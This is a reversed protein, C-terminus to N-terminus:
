RGKKAEARRAAEKLLEGENEVMAAMFARFLGHPENEIDFGERAAKERALAEFEVQVAESFERKTM